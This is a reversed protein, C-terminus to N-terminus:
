IIDKHLFFQSKEKVCIFTLLVSQKYDALWASSLSGLFKRPMFNVVKLASIHWNIEDVNHGVKSISSSLRLSMSSFCAGNHEQLTGIFRFSGHYLAIFDSMIAALFVHDNPQFFTSLIDM